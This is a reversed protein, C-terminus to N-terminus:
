GGNNSRTKPEVVEIAWRETRNLAQHEQYREQRLKRIAAQIEADPCGQSRLLAARMKASLRLCGCSERRPPRYKEFFDLNFVTRQQAEWEL